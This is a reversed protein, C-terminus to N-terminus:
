YLSSKRRQLPADAAADGATCSSYGVDVVCRRHVARCSGALLPNTRVAPQLYGLVPQRRPAATSAFQCLSVSNCSSAPHSRHVSLVASWDATPCVFLLLLGTPWPLLQRGWSMKCPEMSDAMGFFGQYAWNRGFMEPRDAM